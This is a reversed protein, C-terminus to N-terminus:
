ELPHEPESHLTLFALNTTIENQITIMQLAPFCKLASQM